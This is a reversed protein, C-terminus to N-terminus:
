DSIRMTSMIKSLSANRDLFKIDNGAAILLKIVDEMGFRAAVGLARYMHAGAFWKVMARQESAITDYTFTSQGRIRPRTMEALPLTKGRM